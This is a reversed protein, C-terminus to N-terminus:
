GLMEAILKEKLAEEFQSLPEKKTILSELLGMKKLREKAELDKEKVSWMRHFDSANVKGGAGKM